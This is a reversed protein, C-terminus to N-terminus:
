AQEATTLLPHENVSALQMAMDVRTEAIERTYVGVTANGKEHVFGAIAIAEEQSKRFVSQLMYIVFEIPTFDDNHLVVKWMTPIKLKEKTVTITETDSM